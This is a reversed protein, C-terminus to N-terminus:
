LQIDGGKEWIDSEIIKDKLQNLEFLEKPNYVGFRITQDPNTYCIVYGDPFMKELNELYDERM